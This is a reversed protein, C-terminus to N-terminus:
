RTTQVKPQQFRQNFMRSIIDVTQKPNEPEILFFDTFGPKFGLERNLSHVERPMMLEPHYNGILRNWQILKLLKERIEPQISNPISAFWRSSILYMWPLSTHNHENIDFFNVYGTSYEPFFGEQFCLDEIGSFENLDEPSVLFRVRLCFTQIPKEPTFLIDNVSLHILDPARDKSPLLLELEQINQAYGDSPYCVKVRGFIAPPRHDRKQKLHIMCFQNPALWGPLPSPSFQNAYHEYSDSVEGLTVSSLERYGQQNRNKPTKGGQNPNLDPKQEVPEKKGVWHIKRKMGSPLSDDGGKQALLSLLSFKQYGLGLTM